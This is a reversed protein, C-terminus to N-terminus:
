KKTRNNYGYIIAEAINDAMKQASFTAHTYEYGNRSYEMRQDPNAKADALTKALDEASDAKFFYANEGEKLAMIEPSHPENDACIMPVGYAMCHIANLGVQGACITIYAQNYYPAIDTQKWMVGLFKVRDRHPSEQIIRETEARDPGDGILILDSDLNYKDMALLYGQALLPMKKPTIMRSVIVIKNREPTYPEVLQAIEETEISNWAPFLKQPPVGLEVLADKGQPYYLITSDAWNAYKTYFGKIRGKPRIGQGWLTVSAGSKRAMKWAVFNVIARPNFEFITADPKVEKLIKFIQPQIIVKIDDGFAINDFVRVELGEPNELSDLPRQKTKRGYAYIVELDPHKSLAQFTALRYPPLIPQQILVRIKKDPM